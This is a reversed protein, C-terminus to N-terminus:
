VIDKGTTQDNIERRKLVTVKWSKGLKLQARKENNVRLLEKHNVSGFGKHLM